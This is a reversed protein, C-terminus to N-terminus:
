KIPQTYKMIKKGDMIGVCGKVEDVKAGYVTLCFEFAEIKENYDMTFQPEIDLVPVYGELRMHDKLSRVLTDKSQELNADSILGFERFAKIDNHM